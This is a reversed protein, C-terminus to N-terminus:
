SRYVPLDFSAHVLNKEKSRWYNGLVMNPPIREGLYGSNELTWDVGLKARAMPHDMDYADWM